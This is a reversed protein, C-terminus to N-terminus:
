LWTSLQEGEGWGLRVGLRAGARAEKGWPFFSIKRITKINREQGEFLIFAKIISKLSMGRGQAERPFVKVCLHQTLQNEEGARSHGQTRSDGMGQVSSPRLNEPAGECFM